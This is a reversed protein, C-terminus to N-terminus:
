PNLEKIARDWWRAVRKVKWAPEVPHPWFEREKGMVYSRFDNAFVEGPMLHHTGSGYLLDTRLGRVQAFEEVLKRDCNDKDGYRALALADEVIHGYEHPLVYRTIAPHIEVRRGNLTIVGEWPKKGPGRWSRPTNQYHAVDNYAWGNTREVGEWLSVYVSLPVSGLPAALVCEELLERVLAIDHTYCPGWPDVYAQRGYNGKLVPLARWSPAKDDYSFRLDEMELEMVRVVPKKGIYHRKM